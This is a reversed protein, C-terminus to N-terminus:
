WSPMCAARAVINSRWRSHDINSADLLTTGLQKLHAPRQRPRRGIAHSPSWTTKVMGWGEPQIHLHGFWCLRGQAIYRQIPQCKTLSWVEMNTKYDFWKSNTIARQAQMDFASLRSCVPQHFNALVWLQLPPCLTGFGSVRPAQNWHEHLFSALTTAEAIEHGTWHPPQLDGTNTIISGMYTFKGVFTVANNCIHLSPPSPANGFKM